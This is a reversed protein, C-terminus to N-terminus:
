LDSIHMWHELIFVRVEVALHLVGAAHLDAIGSVLQYALRWFEDEDAVGQGLTVRAALSDSVLEAVGYFVDRSTTGYHYLHVVRNSAVGAKTQLAVERAALRQSTQRVLKLICTESSVRNFIVAAEATDTHSHYQLWDYDHLQTQSASACFLQFYFTLGARMHLLRTLQAAREPDRLAEGTKTHSIKVWPVMSDETTCVTLLEFGDTDSLEQALTRRQQQEVAPLADSNVWNEELWKKLECADLGWPAKKGVAKRFNSEQETTVKPALSTVKRLLEDATPRESPEDHLAFSILERKAPDAITAYLDLSSDPLEGTAM